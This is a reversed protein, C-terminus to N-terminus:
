TVGQRSVKIKAKRINNDKSPVVQTVIGLPGENRELQHDKLLVISGPEMNPQTSQWKRRPQTCQNNVEPTQTSKPEGESSPHTDKVWPPPGNKEPLEQAGRHIECSIRPVKSWLHSHTHSWKAEDQFPPDEEQALSREECMKAQVEVYDQTRQASMFTSSAVLLKCSLRGESMTAAAELAEAKATAVAIEKKVALMEMRAELQVKEMRMRIEKETYMLSTKAGEAKAWAAAAAAASTSSARSSKFASAHSRTQLSTEMM